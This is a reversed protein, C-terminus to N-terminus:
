KISLYVTILGGGKLDLLQVVVVHRQLLDAGVQGGLEVLLLPDGVVFTLLAAEEESFVPQHNLDNNKIKIRTMLDLSNMLPVQLVLHVEGALLELLLVLRLRIRLPLQVLYPCIIIESM